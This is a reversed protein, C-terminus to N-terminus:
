EEHRRQRVELHADVNVLLIETELVLVLLELDVIDDVVHRLSLGGDIGNYLCIGWEPWIIILLRDKYRKILTPLFHVFNFLHVVRSKPLFKIWLIILM